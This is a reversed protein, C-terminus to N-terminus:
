SRKPPPLHRASKFRGRDGELLWVSGKEVRPAPGLDVGDETAVAALIEPIVDGHSCLVVDAGALSRALEVAVRGRGEALREDLEVPVGLAESLPRVTDVCRASPSSLIRDPGLGALLGPLLRAQERGRASLERKEEDGDWETRAVAHAHRVVIVPMAATHWICM